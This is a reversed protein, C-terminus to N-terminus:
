HCESAMRREAKRRASGVEHAEMLERLLDCGRGRDGEALRLEAEEALADDVVTSRPFESRVDKYADMAADNDRLNDRYIRAIRLAAKSMMPRTYSGIIISYEHVSVMKKLYEIAGKPNENELALDALQWLADDWRKGQPYPYREIQRELMEKAEDKRGMQLLLEAEASMMPEGLTSPKVEDRLDQIYALAQEKDEVGDVHRAVLMRLAGRAAASEPEDVVLKRLDADAREEEGSLMRYRAADLRCRLTRRAVQEEAGLQDCIAIADPLNGMRALVRSQRYLAEDKDVKREASEAALAYADSAQQLRGANQHERAEALADLHEKGRPKSLTPAICAPLWFVLLLLLGLARCLSTSARPEEARSRLYL